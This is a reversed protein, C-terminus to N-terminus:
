PFLLQLLLNQLPLSLGSVLCSEAGPCEAFHTSCELRPLARPSGCQCKM